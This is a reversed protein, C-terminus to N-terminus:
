FNIALSKALKISDNDRTTKAFAPYLSHDSRRFDSTFVVDWEQTFFFAPGFTHLAPWANISLSIIIGLLAILVSLAFFQTIGHFLFDQVRQLKAIRLAQPTPMAHSQTSETM